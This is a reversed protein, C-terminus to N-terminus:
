PNKKFARERGQRSCKVMSTVLPLKCDSRMEEFADDFIRYDQALKRKWQRVRGRAEADGYSVNLNISNM